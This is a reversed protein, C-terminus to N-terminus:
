PVGMARAQVLATTSRDTDLVSFLGAQEGPPDGTWREGANEHGSERGEGGWAWLITGVLAGHNKKKIQQWAVDLFNQLFSDRQQTYGLQQGPATNVATAADRALAVASVVLPKELEAALKVHLNLYNSANAAARWVSGDAPPLAPDHWGWAQPWLQITVIDVSADSAARSFETQEPRSTFKPGLGPAGVAVLHGPDLSKILAATQTVWRQYANNAGFQEVGDCIEWAFIAPEDRFLVGSYSNRRGVVQSVHKRFLEMAPANGFLAAAHQGFKERNTLAKILSGRGGGGTALADTASLKPAPAAVGAWALYRALGGAWPWFTSLVLQLKLGRKGAHTVLFDLGVLLRADYSGSSTQLAPLVVNDGGAEGCAYARVVKIGLAKLRDLERLLRPRSGGASLEAAGLAMAYWMSAGMFHFPQGELFLGSRERFVFRARADPLSPRGRFPCFGLSVSGVQVAAAPAGAPARLEICLDTAEAQQRLFVQDDDVFLRYSRQEWTGGFSRLKTTTALHWVAGDSSLHLSIGAAPWDPDVYVTAEVQQLGGAVHYCFASEGEFTTAVKAALRASLAGAAVRTARSPDGAFFGGGQTALALDDSRWSTLGWDALSDSVRVGRAAAHAAAAAGATPAEAVPVDSTSSSRLECSFSREAWQKDELDELEQQTFEASDVAVTGAAGTAVDPAFAAVPEAPIVAASTADTMLQVTTEKATPPPKIHPPPLPPPPPPPPLPSPSLQYSRATPDCVSYVYSSLGQQPRVPAGRDCFTLTATCGGEHLPGTTQFGCSGASDRAAQVRVIAESLSICEGAALTNGVASRCSASGQMWMREPAEPKDDRSAKAQPVEAAASRLASAVFLGGIGLVVGLALLCRRAWEGCGCCSGGEHDRSKQKNRRQFVGRRAPADDFYEDEQVSRYMTRAGAERLTDVDLYVRM